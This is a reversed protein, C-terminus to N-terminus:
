QIPLFPKMFLSFFSQSKETDILQPHNMWKHIIPDPVERFEMKEGKVVWIFIMKQVDNPLKLFYNPELFNSTLAFRLNKFYQTLDSICSRDGKDWGRIFIRKDFRLLFLNTLAKWDLCNSINKKFEGYEAQDDDVSYCVPSYLLQKLIERENVVALLFKTDKDNPWKGMLLAQHILSNNEFRGLNHIVSIGEKDTANTNLEPYKELLTGAVHGKHSCLLLPTRGFDPDNPDKPSTDPKQLPFNNLVFLMNGHQGNKALYWFLTKGSNNLETEYNNENIAWKYADIVCIMKRSLLEYFVSSGRHPGEPIIRDLRQSPFRKAVELNLVHPAARALIWRASIGRYGGVSPTYDFDCNAFTQCITSVIKYNGLHINLLLISYGQGPGMQPAQNVDLEPFPSFYADHVKKFYTLLWLPSYGQLQKINPSENIKVKTSSSLLMQMAYPKGQACAAWAMSMRCDQGDLTLKPSFNYDLNGENVIAQAVADEQDFIALWLRYEKSTEPQVKIEIPQEVFKFQFQFPIPVNM